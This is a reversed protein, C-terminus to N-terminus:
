SKERLRRLILAYANNDLKHELIVPIVFGSQYQRRLNYDGVKKIADVAQTWGITSIVQGNLSCFPESLSGQVDVLNNGQKVVRSAHIERIKGAVLLDDFLSYDKDDSGYLDDLIAHGTDWTIFLNDHLKSIERIQDASLGGTEIGIRMGKSKAYNALEIIWTKFDRFMEDTPKKFKNGPVGAHITLYDIGTNKQNIVDIMERHIVTLNRRATIIPSASDTPVLDIFLAFEFNFLPDGPRRNKNILFPAHATLLVGKEKTAQLKDIWTGVAQSDKLDQGHLEIATTGPVYSNTFINTEEPWLGQNNEGGNFAQGIWVGYRTKLEQCITELNLPEQPEKEEDGITM